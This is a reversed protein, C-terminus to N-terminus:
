NRTSSIFPLPPPSPLRDRRFKVARRDLIPRVLRVASGRINAKRRKLGLVGLPKETALPKDVLQHARETPMTEHHHEASGTGALRRQQPGAQQPQHPITPPRAHQERRPGVRHLLTRDLEGPLQAGEGARHVGFKGRIRAAQM